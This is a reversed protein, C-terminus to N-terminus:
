KPFNSEKDLKEQTKQYERTTKELEREAILQEEKYLDGLKKIVNKYISKMENIDDLYYNVSSIFEESTTGHKKFIGDYVTTTDAMARYTPNNEIYQDTLYIDCYIDVM